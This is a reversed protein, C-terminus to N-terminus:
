HRRTVDTPAPGPWWVPSCFLLQLGAKSGTSTRHLAWPVGPLRSGQSWPLLTGTCVWSLDGHALQVASCARVAQWVMSSCTHYVQRFRPNIDNFIDLDPLYMGFCILTVFSVVITIGMLLHICCVPMERCKEFTWNRGVRKKNFLKKYGQAKWEFNLMVKLLRYFLLCINAIFLCAAICSNDAPFSPSNLHM